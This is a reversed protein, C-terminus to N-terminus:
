SGCSKTCNKENYKKNAKATIYTIRLCGMFLSIGFGKHASAGVVFQNLDIGVDFRGIVWYKNWLM